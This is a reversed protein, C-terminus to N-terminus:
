KWCLPEAIDGAACRSAAAEHQVMEALDASAMALQRAAVRRAHAVPMQLVNKVDAHMHELWGADGEQFRSAELLWQVLYGIPKKHLVMMIRCRSGQRHCHASLSGAATNLVLHGVLCGDGNVVANRPWASGRSVKRTSDHEPQLPPPPPAGERSECPAAAASGSAVKASPKDGVTPKANDGDPAKADDGVLARADDRDSAKGEDGIPPKADDGAHSKALWPAVDDDTDLEASSSESDQDESVVRQPFHVSVFETARVARASARRDSMSVAQFGKRLSQELASEHPSPENVERLRRQAGVVMDPTWVLHHSIVANHVWEVEGVAVDMGLLLETRLLHLEISKLPGGEHELTFFMHLLAGSLAFKLKGLMCLSLRLRHNGDDGHAEVLAGITVRPCKTRKHALM